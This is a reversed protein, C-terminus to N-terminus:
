KAELVPKPGRSPHFDDFYTYEGPKLPQFVLVSRSHPALVQEKHLKHSEFESATAGTNHLEIKFQQNAPVETRLPSIKGDHFEITFTPTGAYAPTALAAGLLAFCMRRRMRTHRTPGCTLAFTEGFRNAIKM